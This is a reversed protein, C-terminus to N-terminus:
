SVGGQLLSREIDRFEACSSTAAAILYGTDSGAIMFRAGFGVLKCMLERDSRIGAVGLIKGHRRCTEGVHEFADLIQTHRVQGPIGLSLALDGSGVLLIDIGPVAAIEDAANVGVASELMPLVVVHSDLTAVTEAAAYPRFATVSNPGAMGRRGLPPFRAADVIARAQTATEVHPVVVGSAGGDLVRSILKPDHGAVRVFSALGTGLAATCLMSATEMSFAYHEMDVYFSDFGAAQVMLPFDATRAHNAAMCLSLRGQSLSTRFTELGRTMKNPGNFFSRILVRDIAAMDRNLSLHHHSHDVGADV